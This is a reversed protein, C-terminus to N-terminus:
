LGCVDSETIDSRSAWLGAVAELTTRGLYSLRKELDGNLTKPPPYVSCDHRYHMLALWELLLDLHHLCLRDTLM